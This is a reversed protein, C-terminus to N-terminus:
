QPSSKFTGFSFSSNCLLIWATLRLGSSKGQGGKNCFWSSVPLKSNYIKGQKLFLWWVGRKSSSRSGLWDLRRAQSVEFFLHLFIFPKLFSTLKKSKMGYPIIFNHSWCRELVERTWHTVSQHGDNGLQTARGFDLSYRFLAVLVRNSTSVTKVIILM